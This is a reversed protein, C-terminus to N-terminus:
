RRGAIEAAARLRHVAAHVAEALIDLARVDVGDRVGIRRWAEGSASGALAAVEEGVSVLRELAGEASGSPISAEPDLAPRDQILVRRLAAGADAIESAAAGALALIAAREEPGPAIADEHEPELLERFRRGFSRLAAAGDAPTLGARDFGCKACPTM